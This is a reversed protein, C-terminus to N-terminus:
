LYEGKTHKAMGELPTIGSSGMRKRQREKIWFGCFSALVGVWLKGVKRWKRARLIM